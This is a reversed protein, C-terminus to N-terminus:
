IGIPCCGFGAIWGVIEEGIRSVAKWGQRPTSFKEMKWTIRFRARWTRETWPRVDLNDADKVIKAEISERKEYESLTDTYFDALSTKQCHIKPPLILWGTKCLSKPCLEPWLNKNRCTMPLLWACSRIRMARTKWGPSWCLSGSWGQRISLNRKRLGNGLHQRWGRPVNACPGSRLYFILIM